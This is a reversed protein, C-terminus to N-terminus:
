EGNRIELGTRFDYVGGHWSEEETRSIIFENVRCYCLQDFRPHYNGAPCKKYMFPFIKHKIRAWRTSYGSAM